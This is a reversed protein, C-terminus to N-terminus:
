CTIWSARQRLFVFPGFYASVSVIGLSLSSGDLCCLYVIIIIKGQYDFCQACKLATQQRLLFWLEAWFRRYRGFHVPRLGALTHGLILVDTCWSVLNVCEPYCIPRQFCHALWILASGLDSCRHQVFESTSNLFCFTYLCPGHKHCHIKIVIWGFLYDLVPCFRSLVLQQYFLFLYSIDTRHKLCICLFIPVNLEIWCVSQQPYCGFIYSYVFLFDVIQWLPRYFSGPCCFCVFQERNAHSEHGICIEVVGDCYSPRAAFRLLLTEPNFSFSCYIFLIIVDLNPM